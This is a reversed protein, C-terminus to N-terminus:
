SCPTLHQPTGSGSSREFGIRYAKRSKYIPCEAQGRDPCPAM